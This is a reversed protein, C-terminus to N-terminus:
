FMDNLAVLEGTVANVGYACDLKGCMIYSDRECDYVYVPEIEIHERLSEFAEESSMVPEEASSFNSFAKLLRSQDFYNVATLSARDIVLKVKIDLANKVANEQLPRIEALIYDDKLHIGSLKRKGSENPYVLRMFRLVEQKGAEVETETLPITEPHPENALVTVLDVEPSLDIEKQEFEGGELPEEWQLVEDLTMYSSRDEGYTFPITQVADNTLFVEEIGYVPLWKEQEQDPLVLLRCQDKAFPEYKDPTLAFPEWEIQAENPFEGDISFGTLVDDDNFGVRIRGSPSVPINDVAAGFKLTTDEEHAILFQRGFTLGTIEEIWDIVDEKAASLPYLSSDASNVGAAFNLLRIAKTHFNIDVVATGQPNFDEDSGADGTPFWEMNLIYITENFHNKERFFQYRKLEHDNLGVTERVYDIIEQLQEDM